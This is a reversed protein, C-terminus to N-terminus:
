RPPTRPAPRRPPSCSRCQPPPCRIRPTTGTACSPTASTPRWSTSPASRATLRLSRRRSCAVLRDALTAISARDFLDTAYEIAGHLGAPTGDPARQEGLSVSLDFKTAATQVPEVTTALGALDLDAEANNHFALMVQFVPHRALSRAPNLAEVLREFPLDQHSYAALNAARVRGILERLSPNGSTDTRLVLTNVFFGVLDDLASDTRGAIPSGIAIDTGAGLRTLLAALGAQLVMFLSAQTDRALALLRGHLQPGIHLAVSDGRHSALAPRPRDTPLEIQDPLDRLTDTWFALQRAIASDPDREHGLVEHQWLTYDAYQVPLAALRPVHGERRAAYAAALDRWLPALSWGDSAIHHLVLLLM